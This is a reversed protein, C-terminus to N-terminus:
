FGIRIHVDGYFELDIFVASKDTIEFSFGTEGHSVELYSFQAIVADTAPLNALTQEATAPRSDDHLLIPSTAGFLIASGILATKIM